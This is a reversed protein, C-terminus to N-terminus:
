VAIRVPCLCRDAPTARPMGAPDHSFLHFCLGTSEELKVFAQCALQMQYDM